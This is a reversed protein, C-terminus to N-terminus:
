LYFFLLSNIELSRVAHSLKRSENKKEKKVFYSKFFLLFKEPVESGLKSMLIGFM